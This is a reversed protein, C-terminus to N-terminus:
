AIVADLARALREPHTLMVEHSGDIEITRPSDLRGAMAQYIEAPVAQDQALFVYSSPISSAWFQDLRIPEDLWGAPSPVLRPEVAALQEPTADQMFSAAWLEPPMVVTNDDSQSALAKVAAVLPDPLVDNIAEGDRLVWADVFVVRGIREPMAEAVLQILPGGGSHGVLVIDLQTLERVQDILDRAMMSMTVGSRDVDGDELGRLTPAIVEHGMRRLEDAVGDWAWGGQWGGHVLVIEM